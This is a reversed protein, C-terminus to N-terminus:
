FKFDSYNKFINKIDFFIGDKKCLKIFFNKGKNIIEKHSVLIILGDFFNKYKQLNNFNKITICGEISHNILPDFLYVNKYKKKLSTAIKLSQSNRCDPVNEKFTMGILLINKKEYKKKLNLNKKM